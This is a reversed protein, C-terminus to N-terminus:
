ITQLWAWSMAKKKGADTGPVIALRVALLATRVAVHNNFGIEPPGEPLPPPITARAPIAAEVVAAGGLNPIERTPRGCKHCFMADEVLYTGCTCREDM